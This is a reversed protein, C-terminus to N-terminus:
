DIGLKETEGTLLDAADALTLRQHDRYALIEGNVTIMAAEVEELQCLTFVLSYDALTLAVGSLNGYRGSLDVIVVGDELSWGRLSVGQPIARSLGETEPGELLAELMAQVPETNEPLIRYEPVLALTRGPTDSVFYIPTGEEERNAAVCASLLLTLLLTVAAIRKM